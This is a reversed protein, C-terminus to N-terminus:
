TVGEPIVIEALQYCNFFSSVGITRLSSPLSVSTLSYCSLFAENVITEVGEEVKLSTIDSRCFAYQGISKVTYTDVGNTVTAPITIEGFYTSQTQWGDKEGQLTVEVTKADADLINYYLGGSEFDYAAARGSTLLVVISILIFRLKKM